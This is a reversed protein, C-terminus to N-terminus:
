SVGGSIKNWVISCVQDTVQELPASADVRVIRGPYKELLSLYGQRIQEHFHIHEDDLRNYERAENAKIRALGISPEIDLYITLHPMVDGIAFRNITWVEEVGIGRGIGQYVLSSDIFRDCILIQGESLAPQIVEVLHQRRAAAYLLAETRPDMATNARDLIVSRIQEAIEVGGPERSIKAKLGKANLFEHLRRIASTKGSGEGGEFTIFCGQKTKM